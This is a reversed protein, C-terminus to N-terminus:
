GTEGAGSERLIREARRSTGDTGYCALRNTNYHRTRISHPSAITLASYLWCPMSGSIVIAYVSIVTLTPRREYRWVTSACNERRPPTSTTRICSAPRDLDVCGYSAPVPPLLILLCRCSPLGLSLRGADVVGRFPCFGEVFPAPPVAAVGDFARLLRPADRDGWSIAGVLLGVVASDTVVEVDVADVADAGFVVARLAEAGEVIAPRLAVGLFVVVLARAAVGVVSGVGAFADALSTTLRSAGM